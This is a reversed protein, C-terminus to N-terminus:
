YVKQFSLNLDSVSMDIVSIAVIFFDLINWGNRLYSGEDFLFGYSIIKFVAEMLFIYNLVMDISRSSDGIFDHTDLALKISSIIIIFLILNDFTTSGVIQSLVRRIKLDKSFIYLSDHCEIGEFLTKEKPKKTFLEAIIEEDEYEEQLKLLKLKEKTEEKKLRDLAENEADDGEEDLANKAKEVFGNILIGIFLNLFVYNGIIMLSVLFLMTVGRYVESNLTLFEVDTWNILTVLQFVSLFSFYFNDFNQRFGLRQNLKGAYLQSGVLSYM